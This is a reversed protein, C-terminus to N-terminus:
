SNIIILFFIAAGIILAVVCGSNEEAWSETKAPAPTPTPTSQSTSNVSTSVGLQSCLGRLTEKNSNYSTRFQSEMNLTGILLTAEWANRLMTKITNLAGYRDYSIRYRMSEQTSNVEEIVFQQAQSAIRTSLKLYLNDSSGLILKINDLDPKTYNVLARANAITETKNDFLQLTRLLSDLHPKIKKQKEREPKDNIWEQITKINEECRQKAISGVALTKAKKALDVATAGPDISSDKYHNFYDIGCQLVANALKDSVSSYNLNEDGSISKLQELDSKTQNYLDNGAKAANTPSETRQKHAIDIQTIINGTIKQVIVAFFDQKASFVENKVINVLENLSFNINKKEIEDAIINLFNLQLDKKTIKFTEDTAQKKLEYCYDSELFKLNALLSWNTKHLFELVFLNHFASHNKKTVERWYNKGDEKTEFILKKWIQRAKNTDGDNLAEFAAEDTIDNGKYFWFLAANMKDSDLNLKAAADTISELTRNMVGLIPFSFDGQPPEQEAELYQKLRRIQREKEKATASVLIGLVRYPNDIISKM